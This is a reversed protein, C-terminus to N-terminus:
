IEKVTEGLSDFQDEKAPKGPHRRFLTNNAPQEM